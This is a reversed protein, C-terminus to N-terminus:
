LKGPSVKAKLHDKGEDCSGQAGFHDLALQRQASIEGQRQMLAYVASGREDTM